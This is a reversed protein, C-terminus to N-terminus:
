LTKLYEIVARREPETLVDSFDHGGNGNGLKRTDYVFRKDIGGPTPDPITVIASWNLTANLVGQVLQTVSPAEPAVPNCNLLILGPIEACSLEDHKWGIREHDYANEMSLDFGKVPGIEKIPRRWLAPRTTSNLVQDLTPVSGNHFYPATAWVGYLPPAQYGIVGREWGCAGQVRMSAPMGDDAFEAAPSKEEPSIWGPQGEPFGWWTTGYTERLYPSLEDARASDTGIVDLPSIHAAMGELVPSELFAPDNVYRPSSAGHCSACSGNGGLPRPKDANGEHAWLDKSHFLIAGQEALATDIEGPYAPSRLSLFYSSANRAHQDAYDTFAKGGGGTTAATAMIIRTGDISTGADFFKRARHGYNWWAPTDQQEVTPHPQASNLALKLPNPNIAVTDYDTIMVVLEFGAVANNSGRQDMGLLGLNVGIGLQELTPVVGPIPAVASLVGDWVQMSLDTNNNGPGLNAAQIMLPDSDTGAGIQGGHCMFCSNDGIIGTWNGSEDKRQRKGQPLQGSGGNTLNPDEGPLPYPNHYAALNAGYRLAYMEDFNEPRESLGWRKWTNNYDEATQGAGNMQLGDDMFWARGLDRQSRYAGCTKPKQMSEPQNVHCDEYFSNFYVAKGDNIGPRILSRPDIPLAVDDAKDECFSEWVHSGRASGLLPADNVAAGGGAGDLCGDPNEFCELMVAMDDYPDSGAPWPYGGSHSKEDQQSPMLLIRSLSGGYASNGGLAAWSARLMAFDDDPEAGLMFLRGEDADAVGGPVHCTRCFSLRPEIRQKFFEEQSGFSGGGPGGGGSAGSAGGDYEGACAALLLSTVVGALRRAFPRTTCSGM